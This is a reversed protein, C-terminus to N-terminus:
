SLDMILRRAYGWDIGLRKGIERYSCGRERLDKAMKKNALHKQRRKKSNEANIKLEPIIESVREKKVILGNLIHTLFFYVDEQKAIYYIWADKWHLKRKKILHINGVGSFNQIDKLVGKHSQSIGIKYGSESYKGVTGEGDFFGAIYDWNM